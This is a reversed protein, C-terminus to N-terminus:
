VWVRKVRNGIGCLIAYSITGAADSIQQADLTVEGERGLLTVADGPQLTSCETLDIATLDMSVAGLMPVLRGAAIVQGRSTLQHPIGDAYGAAAIGVRMPHPARFLAGYGIPAGAPVAKVAVLRAKWTLVPSVELISEPAAGRVPPVYGYVSLGPRVMNGWAERRGYAIPTTPALHVYRAEIGARRLAERWAAFAEVQEDTQPSSFDGASALHSMFGELRLHTAARVAEAM